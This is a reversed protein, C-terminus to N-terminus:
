AFGGCGHAGCLHDCEGDSGGACMCASLYTGAVIRDAPVRYRVPRLRDVGHIVLRGTGAGEIRAGACQLFGCLARIEPERAAPEIVTVGDALVSALLLNETAGVSIFPLHLVAGKLRAAEACFGTESEEISAGMLRLSRLHLDIPRAGIVCGGPYKMCIRGTKALLAGALMVSSRMVGVSDAPMDCGSFSRTNVRVLAAERVVGCGLSELLRLMHYVDSIDPCNEIECTGDILLTAALIPLSANKSGQIATQGDLCKGGYIRIADM